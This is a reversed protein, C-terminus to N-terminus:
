AGSALTPTRGANGLLTQSLWIYINTLDQLRSTPCGDAGYFYQTSLHGPTQPRDLSSNGLNRRRHQPGGFYFFTHRSFFLIGLDEPGTLSPAPHPVHSLPCMNKISSIILLSLDRLSLSFVAYSFLLRASSLALTLPLKFSLDFLHLCFKSSRIRTSYFCKVM